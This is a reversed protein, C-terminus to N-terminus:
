PNITGPEQGLGRPARYFLEIPGTAKVGESFLHYHERDLLKYQFTKETLPDVISEGKLEELNKPLSGHIWRHELIAAHLGLLRRQASTRIAARGLSEPESAAYFRALSRVFSELDNVKPVPAAPMPTAWLSEPKQYWAVGEGVVAEVENEFIQRMRDKEYASSRMLMRVFKETEQDETEFFVERVEEASLKTMSKWSGAIFQGEHVLTRQMIKRFDPRSQCWSRLKQCSTLSWRGLSAELQRYLISQLSIAVLLSILVNDELRSSLTLGEVIESVALDPQGDAFHVRARLDIHRVLQRMPSLHDYITELDSNIVPDRAPKRNGAAIFGMVSPALRVKARAIELPSSSLSLGTPAPPIPLPTEKDTEFDEHTWPKGKAMADHYQEWLEFQRVKISSLEDAARFYEEFGNRGTPKSFYKPFLAVRPPLEPGAQNGALMLVISAVVM